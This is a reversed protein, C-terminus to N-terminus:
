SNEQAIKVLDLGPELSGRLLAAFEGVKNTGKWSVDPAENDPLVEVVDAIASADLDDPSIHFVPMTEVVLVTWGNADFPVGTEKQFQVLRVSYGNQILAAVTGLSMVFREGYAGNLKEEFIGAAEVASIKIKKASNGWGQKQSWIGSNDTTPSNKWSYYGAGNDIVKKLAAEVVRDFTKKTM